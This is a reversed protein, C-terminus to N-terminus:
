MLEEWEGTHRRRLTFKQESSFEGKLRSYADRDFTRATSITGVELVPCIWLRMASLISCTSLRVLPTERNHWPGALTIHIERLANLTGEISTQQSKLNGPMLFEPRTWIHLRQIQPVHTAVHELLCPMSLLTYLHLEKVGRTSQSLAALHTQLDGLMVAPMKTDYFVQVPRGPVLQIGIWWPSFLECLQPFINDSVGLPRPFYATTICLKTITGSTRPTFMTLRSPDTLWWKLCTLRPLQVTELILPFNKPVGTVGLTELTTRLLGMTHGIASPQHSTSPLSLSTVSSVPMEIATPVFFSVILILEKLTPISLISRQHSPKVEVHALQLTHLSTSTQLVSLMFRFSQGAVTWREPYKDSPPFYKRRWCVTTASALVRAHRRLSLLYFISDGKLELNRFPANTNIFAFM